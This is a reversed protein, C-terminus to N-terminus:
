SNRLERRLSSTYYNTLQRHRDVFDVVDRNIKRTMLMKRFSKSLQMVEDAKAVDGDYMMVIIPKVRRLFSAYTGNPNNVAFDVLEYMLRYRLNMDSVSKVRNLVRFEVRDHMIKCVQYKRDFRVWEDEDIDMFINSNCYSNRLRFKYLSYLIASFPRLADALEEGNMGQVSLTVHGGCRRDSPSYYDEVVYKAESFMNFVKNRWTSKGILPLLNTVAEVGCSSDREYHSFLALETVARRHFSNKEVEFGIMFRSEFEGNEDAVINARDKSPLHTLDVNHATKNHNRFPLGLRQAEHYGLVVSRNDNGEIEYNIGRNM